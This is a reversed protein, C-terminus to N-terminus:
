PQCHGPENHREQARSTTSDVIDRKSRCHDSAPAAARGTASLGPVHKCRETDLPLHRPHTVQVYIQGPQKPRSCSPAMSVHGTAAFFGPKWASWPVCGSDPYVPVPAQLKTRDQSIGVRLYGLDAWVRLSWDRCVSVDLLPMRHRLELM